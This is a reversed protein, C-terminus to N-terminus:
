RRKRMQYHGLLGTRQSMPAFRKDFIKFVARFVAEEDFRLDTRSELFYIYPKVADLPVQNAQILRMYRYAREMFDATRVVTDFPPQETNERSPRIINWAPSFPEKILAKDVHMRTFWNLPPGLWFFRDSEGRLRLAVRRGSSTLLGDKHLHGLSVLWGRRPTAHHRLFDLGIEKIEIESGRVNKIWRVTSGADTQLLRVRLRPDPFARLLWDTRERRLDLTRGKFYKLLDSGAPLPEDLAMDLLLGYIDADFQLVSFQLLFKRFDDLDLGSAARYTRGLETLALRALSGGRDIRRVLGLGVAFDTIGAAYDEKLNRSTETQLRLQLSKVVELRLRSPAQDFLETVEAIRSLQYAGTTYGVYRALAEALSERCENWEQLM